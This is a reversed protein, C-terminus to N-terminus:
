REIYKSPEIVGIEFAFSLCVLESASPPVSEFGADLWEQEIPLQEFSVQYKGAELEGLPILAFHVTAEPRVLLPTV